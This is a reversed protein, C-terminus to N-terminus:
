WITVTRAFGQPFPCLILFKENMVSHILYISLYVSPHHISPLFFSLFSPLLFPYMSSYIANKAYKVIELFDEYSLKNLSVNSIFSRPCHRGINKSLLHVNM